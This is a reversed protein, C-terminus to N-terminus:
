CPCSMPKEYVLFEEVKEKLERLDPSKMLYADASWTAFDHQYSSHGSHLIVPIYVDRKRVQNLVQIGDMPAMKIDLIVVEVPPNESILGLAEPGSGVSRTAFGEFRLERECLFCFDKDDDVILITKM